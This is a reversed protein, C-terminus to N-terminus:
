FNKKTEEQKREEPQRGEAEGGESDRQDSQRQRHGDEDDADEDGDGAWRFGFMVAARVVTQGFTWEWSRQKEETVFWHVKFLIDM